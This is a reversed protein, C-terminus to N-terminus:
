RPTGEIHYKWHRYMKSNKDDFETSRVNDMPYRATGVRYRLAEDDLQENLRQPTNPTGVKRILEETFNEEWNTLTQAFGVPPYLTLRIGRRTLKIFYHTEHWEHVTSVIAISGDPKFMVNMIQEYPRVTYMIGSNRLQVLYPVNDVKNPDFTM